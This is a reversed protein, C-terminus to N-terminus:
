NACEIMTKIYDSQNVNADIRKDNRELRIKSISKSRLENIESKDLLFEGTASVHYSKVRGSDTTPNQEIDRVLHTRSDEQGSYDRPDQAVVRNGVYNLKIVSDDSFLVWFITSQDFTPLNAPKNYGIAYGIDNRYRVRLYSNGDNLHYGFSLDSHPSILISTASIEKTFPDKEIEISQCDQGFGINPLALLFIFSSIFLIYSKM